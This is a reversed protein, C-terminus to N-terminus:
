VFCMTSRSDCSYQLHSIQLGCHLDREYMGQEPTYSLGVKTGIAHFVSDMSSQSPLLVDPPTVLLVDVDSQKFYNTWGPICMAQMARTAAVQIPASTKLPKLKTSAMMGLLDANKYSSNGVFVIRHTVHDALAATLLWQGFHNVSISREIHDTDTYSPPGYTEIFASLVLSTIRPYEELVRAAFNRVSKFDGFDCPMAEIFSGCQDALIRFKQIAHSTNQSNEDRIALILHVPQVETATWSRGSVSSSSRNRTTGSQVTGDLNSRRSLTSGSTSDNGSYSFHNSASHEASAYLLQEIALYGLGATAGTWVIIPRDQADM